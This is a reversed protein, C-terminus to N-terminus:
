LMVLRVAHENLGGSEAPDAWESCSHRAYSAHGWGQHLQLPLQGRPEGEVYPSYQLIPFLILTASKSSITRNTRYVHAM